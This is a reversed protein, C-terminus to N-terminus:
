EIVIKNKAPFYLMKATGDVLELEFGSDTKRVHFKASETADFGDTWLIAFEQTDGEVPYHVIQLEM